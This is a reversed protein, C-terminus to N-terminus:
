ICLQVTRQNACVFLTDSIHKVFINNAQSSSVVGDLVFLVVM